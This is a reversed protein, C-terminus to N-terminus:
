KHELLYAKKISSKKAKGLILFVLGAIFFVIPVIILANIGDFMQTGFYPIRDLLVVYFFIIGFSILMGLSDYGKRFRNREDKNTVLDNYKELYYVELHGLKCSQVIVKVLMLILFVFFYVTFITDFYLLDLIDGGGIKDIFNMFISFNYGGFQDYDVFIPLFIVGAGLLFLLCNSLYEFLFAKKFEKNFRAKDKSGGEGVVEAKKVEEVAPKEPEPQPQPAPEAAPEAKKIVVRALKEGCNPCFNIEEETRFGCKLCKKM